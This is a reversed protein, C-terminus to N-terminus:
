NENFAKKVNAIYEVGLPKFAQLIIQKTQEISFHVTKKTLDVTKDWPELKDLQLQRKLLKEFIKRYNIFSDKFLETYKYLNTILEVNVEDEFAVATIYDKFKHIKSNTNLM